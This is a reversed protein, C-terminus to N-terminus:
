LRSTWWKPGRICGDGCRSRLQDLEVALRVLAQQVRVDAGGQVNALQQRMNEHRDLLLLAAQNSWIATGDVPDTLELSVKIADGSPRLSGSLV